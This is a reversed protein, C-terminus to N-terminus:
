ALEGKWSEPLAEIVIEIVEDLTMKTSDISFAGDAKRLPAHKRSSDIKDRALLSKKVAEASQDAIGKHIEEKRRREARAEPSADLYFRAPSDPL